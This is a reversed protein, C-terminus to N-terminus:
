CYDFCATSEDPWYANLTTFGESDKLLDSPLKDDDSFDLYQELTFGNLDAIYSHSQPHTFPDLSFSHPFHISKELTDYQLDITKMDPHLVAPAQLGELLQQAEQDFCFMNPSYDTLLMEGGEPEHMWFDQTLLSPSTTTSKRKKTIVDTNVEPDATMVRKHSATTAKKPRKAHAPSQSDTDFRLVFSKPETKPVKSTMAGENHHGMNRMRPAPVVSKTKKTRYDEPRTIHISPYDMTEEEGPNKKNLNSFTGMDHHRRSHGGAQTINDVFQRETKDQLTWYGGKGPHAQTPRRDLKIFWQKNLSLNHRISNQWGKSGRQYFPYAESIWKYIDSLTLRGDKSSLIAHAILTAYSYPPKERRDTPKWWPNIQGPWDERTRSPCTDLDDDDEPQIGIPEIKFRLESSKQKKNCNPKPYEQGNGPLERIISFQSMSSM